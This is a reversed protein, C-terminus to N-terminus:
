PRVFLGAGEINMEAVYLDVNGELLVVDDTDEDDDYDYLGDNGLLLLNIGLDAPTRPFESFVVKQQPYEVTVKKIIPKASGIKEFEFAVRWVKGSQPVAELILTDNNAIGSLNTILLTKVTKSDPIRVKMGKKLTLYGTRLPANRLNVFRMLKQTQQGLRAEIEVQVGTITQLDNEEVWDHDTVLDNNNTYYSFKV